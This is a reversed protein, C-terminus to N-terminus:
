IISMRVCRMIPWARRWFTNNTRLIGIMIATSSLIGSRRISRVSSPPMVFLRPSRRSATCIMFADPANIPYHPSVFSVLLVWPRDQGAGVESIWQCAAAGIRADYESYSSGGRGVGGAFGSSDFPPPNQRLLGMLWGYGNFVHLPLIEPDYGNDNAASQFHLKGVSAVTHGQRRLDHGWGQPVGRYPTASDWCPIQHVPRGTQIVGRAPVCMPSSSYARNFMVGEEALRDLQPTKVTEHGVAGMASAMYEDALILIQHHPM